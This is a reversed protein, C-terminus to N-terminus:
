EQVRAFWRQGRTNCFEVKSHYISQEGRTRTREEIAFLFQDAHDPQDQVLLTPLWLSNTWRNCQCKLSARWLRITLTMKWWTSNIGVWRFIPCEPEIMNSTYCTLPRTCSRSWPRIFHNECHTVVIQCLEILLCTAYTSLSKLSTVWIARSPFQM